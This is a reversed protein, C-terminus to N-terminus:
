TLLVELSTIPYIEYIRGFMLREPELSRGDLTKFNKRLFNESIPRQYEGCSLVFCKSKSTQEGKTDGPLSQIRVGAPLRQVRVKQSTLAEM